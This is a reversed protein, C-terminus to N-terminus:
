QKITKQVEKYFLDVTESITKQTFSLVVFHVDNPNFDSVNTQMKGYDKEGCCTFDRILTCGFTLTYKDTQGTKMCLVACAFTMFDEAGLKRCYDSLKQIVMPLDDHHKKQSKYISDETMHVVDPPTKRQESVKAEGLLINFLGNDIRYGIAELSRGPLQALERSSINKLPIIFRKDEGIKEEFYYTMLLEGLDSRYIDNLITPALGQERKLDVAVANEKIVQKLKEVNFGCDSLQSSDLSDINVNTTESRQNIYRESFKEIFKDFVKVDFQVFEPMLM